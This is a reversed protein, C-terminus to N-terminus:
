GGEPVNFWRAQTFSTPIMGHPLTFPGSPVPYGIGNGPM